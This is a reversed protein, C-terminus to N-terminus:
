RGLYTCFNCISKLAEASLEPHRASVDAEVFDGAADISMRNWGPELKMAADLISRVLARAHPADAAGYFADFEAEHRGSYHKLCLM